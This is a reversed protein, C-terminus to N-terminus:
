KYSICVSYKEPFLNAGNVSQLYLMDGHKVGLGKLTKSKSSVIECKQNRERYLSFDYSNLEFASYVQEFLQCTSSSASIEIRKTGEPSQIRLVQLSSM